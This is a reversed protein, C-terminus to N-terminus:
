FAGLLVPLELNTGRVLKIKRKGKHDSYNLVIYYYGKKEQLYGAVM